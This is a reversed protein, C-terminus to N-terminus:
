PLFPLAALVPTLLLFRLTFLVLNLLFTILFVAVARLRM